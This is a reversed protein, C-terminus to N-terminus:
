FYHFRSFLSLLSLLLAEVTSPESAVALGLLRDDNLETVGLVLLHAELHGDIRQRSRLRIEVLKQVIHLLMILVHLAILKVEVVLLDFCANLFNKVTNLVRLDLGILFLLCRVRALSNQWNEKLRLRHEM